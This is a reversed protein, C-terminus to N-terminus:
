PAFGLVALFERFEAVMDFDPNVLWRTQLGDAVAILLSALVEPAPATAARPVSALDRALSAVLEHNRRDFYDHAPHSPDAASAAMAMFLRVARPSSQNEGLVRVFGSLLDETMGDATRRDRHELLSVLLVDKSPFHYYVAPETIGVEAAVARMTTAEHGLELVLREAAELILAKRATGSAYPGRTSPM